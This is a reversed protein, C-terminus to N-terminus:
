VGVKLIIKVPTEENATPAIELQGVVSQFGDFTIKFAYSGRKLRGLKFRGRKDTVIGKVRDTRGCDARVEVIAGPIPAGTPDVVRGQFVRVRM